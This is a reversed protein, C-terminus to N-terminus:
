FAKFGSAFEAALRAEISDSSDGFIDSGDALGDSAPEDPEDDEPEDMPDDEMFDHDPEDAPATDAAFASSFGRSFEAALRAEIDDSSDGFIDSGDAPEDSSTAPSTAPASDGTPEDASPKGWAIRSDGAWGEDWSEPRTAVACTLQLKGCNFFAWNGIVEVGMHIYFEKLAQCGRFANDGIRSLTYPLSVDVLEVCDRFASDQISYLQSLGEGEEACMLSKLASCGEFASTCITELSAPFTVHVINKNGYFAKEGITTIGFPIDLSVDTGKYETLVGDEVVWEDGFSVPMDPAKAPAKTESKPRTWIVTADGAWDDAWGAPKEGLDCAIQLGSCGAFCQSGITKITSTLPSQLLTLKACGDFAHAGLSTVHEPFTFAQLDECGRFANAGISEVDAHCLMTILSSCGEFARDGISKVSSPLVVHMITKNGMFAKEGIVTIGAPITVDDDEGKYATLTTGTVAWESGYPDEGDSNSSGASTMAVAGDAAGVKAEAKSQAETPTHDQSAAPTPAVTPNAPGETTGPTSKQQMQELARIRAMLEERERAAKEQERAIREEAERRIKEQMQTADQEAQARKKAEEAEVLAEYAEKTDVFVRGGCERCFKTTKDNKTGCAVCYKSNEEEETSFAQLSRTLQSAVEEFSRCWTLGSFFERVFKDAITMPQSYDELIFEVRKKKYTYPLAEYSSNRYRFPAAEMESAYIYKLEKSFADCAPNRSHSSSVFVITKCFKMAKRLESEYNQVAGIGHQLNRLAVFCSFGQEELYETLETVTSMDASSYAVFVDRPLDAAYVGQKVKAAEKDFRDIYSRYLDATESHNFSREILQGVPLLWMDTLSKLLFDIIEEMDDTHETVVIQKLFKSCDKKRGSCVLEYFTARFDDPLYERISRAVRTIEETDTYERNVAEWLLQRLNALKEQKEATLLISLVATEKQLIDERFQKGCCLCTHLDGESKLQGGCRRCVFEQM